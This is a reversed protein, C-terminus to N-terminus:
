EIDFFGGASLRVRPMAPPSNSCSDMELFGEMCLRIPAAIARIKRMAFGDWEPVSASYSFIRAEPKLGDFRISHAPTCNRIGPVMGGMPVSYEGVCGKDRSILRDDYEQFMAIVAVARAAGARAICRGPSAMANPTPPAAAPAM